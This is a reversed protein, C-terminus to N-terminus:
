EQLSECIRCYMKKIKRWSRKPSNVRYYLNVLLHDCKPCKMIHYVM